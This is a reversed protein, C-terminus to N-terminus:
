LNAVLGVRGAHSGGRLGSAAEGTALRRAIGAPNGDRNRHAHGACRDAYFLCCDQDAANHRQSNRNGNGNRNGNACRADGNRHLDPNGDLDCVAVATVPLPLGDPLGDGDALRAYQITRADAHRAYGDRHRATADPNGDGPGTDAGRQL